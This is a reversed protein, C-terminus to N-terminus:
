PSQDKRRLNIFEVDKYYTPKFFIWHKMNEPTKSYCVECLLGRETLKSNDDCCDTLNWFEYNDHLILKGCGICEYVRYGKSALFGELDEPLEEVELITKLFEVQKQNLDKINM